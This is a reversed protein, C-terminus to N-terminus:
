RMGWKMLSRFRDVVDPALDDVSLRRYHLQREAGDRGLRGYLEHPHLLMDEGLGANGRYSSWRYEQPQTVMGARVPNAEIYRQCTLLYRETSVPHSWFRSEWTSGTRGLRKNFYLSYQQGVRRTLEPALLIDDFSALIHVHNPMLVYAHISCGIAPAQRALWELYVLHDSETLFCPQRDHGRQVIHLPVGPLLIRPRRSM